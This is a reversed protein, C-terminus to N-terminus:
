RNLILPGPELDNVHAVGKGGTEPLESNAKEHQWNLATWYLGRRKVETPLHLVCVSSLPGDFIATLKSDFTEFSISTVM